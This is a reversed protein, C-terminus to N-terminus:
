KHDVARVSRIYATVLLGLIVPSAIPLRIWIAIVGHVAPLLVCVCLVLSAFRDLCRHQMVKQLALVGPLGMIALDYEFAYPTALIVVSSLALGRSLPEDAGVWLRRALAASVIAIVIWTVYVLWRPSYLALAFGAPTISRTPNLIRLLTYTTQRDLAGLFASWLEIKWVIAVAAACAIGTAVAIIFVRFSRDVLAYFSTGILFQPKFTLLGLAIGAVIPRSRSATFVIALLLASLTGNQGFLISLSFGPFLVAFIASLWSRYTLIAAGVGCATFFALWLWYAAIPEVNGIPVLALLVHPPYAWPIYSVSEGAAQSMAETLATSSYAYEPTGSVALRGAAYFSIFDDAIIRGLRNKLQGDQPLGFWYFTTISYATAFLGLLCLIVARSSRM